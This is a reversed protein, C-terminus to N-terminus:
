SEKPSPFEAWEVKAARELRLAFEEFADGIFLRAPVQLAYRRYSKAMARAENAVALLTESGPAPCSDSGAAVSPETPVTVPGGPCQCYLHDEGCKNCITM